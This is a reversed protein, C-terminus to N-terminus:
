FSVLVRCLSPSRATLSLGIVEADRVRDEHDFVVRTWDWDITM